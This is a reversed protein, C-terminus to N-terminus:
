TVRRPTAPLMLEEDADTLTATPTPLVGTRANFATHIEVIANTDEALVGNCTPAHVYGAENGPTACLAAELM